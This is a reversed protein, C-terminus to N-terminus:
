NQAGIEEIRRRELDVWEQPVQGTDHYRRWGDMGTLSGDAMGKLLRRTWDAEAQQMTLSYEAEILFVRPVIRGYLDLQARAAALSADLAAVRRRLLAQAEDPPLVGLLSLAAEFRPYEKVPTVILESLWEHLELAGPETLRYVTREPRHGDREVGSAEIFGHRELNQVVGYLSGYNIKISFEKGRARLLQAIEYPHRPKERIVALVALALPNNMTRKAV